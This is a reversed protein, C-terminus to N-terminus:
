IFNTYCVGHPAMFVIARYIGHWSKSLIVCVPCPLSCFWHIYGVRRMIKKKMTLLRIHRRAIVSCSYVISCWNSRELHGFWLLPLGSSVGFFFLLYSVSLVFNRQQRSLEVRISCSCLRSSLLCPHLNWLVVRSLFILWLWPSTVKCLVTYFCPGSLFMLEINDM